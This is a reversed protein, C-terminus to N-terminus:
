DHNEEGLKKLQKSYLKEALPINKKYWRNDGVKSGGLLLIAMRNPDFAYLVRYPKGKHQIRLERMHSYKSGLM